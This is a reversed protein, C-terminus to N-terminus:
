ADELADLPGLGVGIYSGHVIMKRGKRGTKSQKNLNKQRKNGTLLDREIGQM